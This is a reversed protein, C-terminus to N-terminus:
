RLMGEKTVPLINPLQVILHIWLIIKNPLSVSKSMFKGCFETESPFFVRFKWCLNGVCIELGKEEAKSCNRWASQFGKAVKPVAGPDELFDVKVPMAHSCGVLWYPCLQTVFIEPFHVFQFGWFISTSHNLCNEKRQLKRGHQNEPLYMGLPKVEWCIPWQVQNIGRHRAHWTYRRPLLLSSFIGKGNQPDRHFIGCTQPTKLSLKFNDFTQPIEPIERLYHLPPQTPLIISRPNNKQLLFTIDHRSVTIKNNALSWIPIEKPKELELRKYRSEPTPYKTREKQVLMDKNQYTFFPM